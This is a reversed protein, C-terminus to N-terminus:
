MPELKKSLLEVFSILAIIFDVKVFDRSALRSSVVIADERALTSIDRVLFEM